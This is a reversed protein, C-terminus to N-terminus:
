TLPILSRGDRWYRFWKVWMNLVLTSCIPYRVFTWDTGDFMTPSFIASCAKGLCSQFILRPFSRAFVVDGGSLRINLTLSHPKKAEGCMELGNRNHMYLLLVCSGKSISALLPPSLTLLPLLDTCFTPWDPLPSSIPQPIGTNSVTTSDRIKAVGM